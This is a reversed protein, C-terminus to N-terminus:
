KVVFWPNLLSEKNYQLEKGTLYDYVKKGSELVVAHAAATDWEMTPGLRPYIDAVGEAVLCLKLSSGISIIEKEKETELEEIFVKTEDSLHSKSAVISYKDKKKASPLKEGNKFAGLGKKAYYIDGKAPVCVIGMVPVNKNILAVNVTFEGNKKIFEKTGDIPDLLWFYEWDRRKQFPIEKNEESLIPIQPYSKKLKGCLIENSRKDAETLPSNDDKFEIDFDEEYIAMIAEGAERAISIVQEMDIEIVM